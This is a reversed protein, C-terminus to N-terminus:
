TQRRRYRSRGAEGCDDCYKRPRGIKNEPLPRGCSRCLGPDSLWKFSAISRFTLTTTGAADDREFEPAPHLRNDAANRAACLQPHAREDEPSLAPAKGLVHSAFLALVPKWEMLSEIRRSVTTHSVGVARGIERYSTLGGREMVADCIRQGTDDLIPPHGGAAVRQDLDRLLCLASLHSDQGESWPTVDSSVRDM